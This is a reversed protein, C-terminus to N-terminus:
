SMIDSMQSGSYTDSENSNNIPTFHCIEYHVRISITHSNSNSHNAVPCKHTCLFSALKKQITSACAYHQHMTSACLSPEVCWQCVSSASPHTSSRSSSRSSSNDYGCLAAMVTANDRDSSNSGTVIAAVLEVVVM